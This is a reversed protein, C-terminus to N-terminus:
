SDTWVNHCLCFQFYEADESLLSFEGRIVIATPDIHNTESYLTLVYQGQQRGEGGAQDGRSQGGEDGAAEGQPM